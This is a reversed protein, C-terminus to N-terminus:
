PNQVKSIMGSPLLFELLLTIHTITHTYYEIYHYQTIINYQTNICPSETIHLLQAPRQVRLNIIHNQMERRQNWHGLPIICNYNRETWCRLSERFIRLKKGSTSCVRSLFQLRGFQWCSPSSCAASFPCDGKELQLQHSSHTGPGPSVAKELRHPSTYDIPKPPSGLCNGYMEKSSPRHKPWFLNSPSIPVPFPYIEPM